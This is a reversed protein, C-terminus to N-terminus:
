RGEVKKSKRRRVYFFLILDLLIFAVIAAVYILLLNTANVFVVSNEYGVKGSLGSGSYGYPLTIKYNYTDNPLYVTMFSSNSEYETGGVQVSWHTGSPLGSIIFTFAQQSIFSIQYYLGEGKVSINGQQGTINYGQIPPIFYDYTGNALYFNIISGSSSKNQGSVNVYWTTGGVLGQEIFSVKYKDRQFDITETVNSDTVTITGSQPNPKYTVNFSTISFPYKGKCESFTYSSNSVQVTRGAFDIQWGYGSPLGSENFTVNYYNVTFYVPVVIDSGNVDVFGHEPTVNFGAIDGVYYYYSGSPERFSVSSNYTSVATGNLSVYWSVNEPLGIESFTVTFTQQPQGSAIQVALSSVLILSVVLLIAIKM